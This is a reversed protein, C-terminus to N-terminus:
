VSKKNFTFDLYINQVEEKQKFTRSLICNWQVQGDIILPWMQSARSNWTWIIVNALINLQAVLTANHEYKIDSYMGWYQAWNSFYTATDTVKVM